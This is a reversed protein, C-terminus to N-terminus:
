TERNMADQSEFPACGFTEALILEVVPNSKTSGICVMARDGVADSFARYVKESRDIVEPSSEPSPSWVLTQNLQELESRVIR